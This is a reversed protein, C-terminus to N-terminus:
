PQQQAHCAGLKQLRNRLLIGWAQFAHRLDRWNDVTNAVIPTTGGRRDVAQWLLANNAGDTAFAEAEANGSFYGVGKNFALSAVNYGISAYPAYTAVTNVATNPIKADTLAAQIVITGATPTQVMQCGTKLQDYTESYFVNALDQRDKEPVDNLGSDPGAIIRPPALNVTSYRTFDVDPNLYVLSAQGPQGRTLLDPRPLFGDSPAAEVEMQKTAGGILTGTQLTANPDQNQSCAAGILVTVM